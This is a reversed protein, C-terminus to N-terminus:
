DFAKGITMGDGGDDDHWDDEQREMKEAQLDELLHLEDVSIKSPDLEIVRRADALAEEYDTNQKYLQM